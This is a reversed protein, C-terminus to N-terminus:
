NSRRIALTVSAALRHRAAADSWTLSVAKRRVSTRGGSDFLLLSSPTYGKVISFHAGAFLMAVVHNSVILRELTTFFDVHSPRMDRWPQVIMLYQGHSRAVAFCLAELMRTWDGARMGSFLEARGRQARWAWGKELLEREASKGIHCHGVTALRVANVAAYIASSGTAHDGEWLPDLSSTALRAEELWDEPADIHPEFLRDEAWISLLMRRRTALRM